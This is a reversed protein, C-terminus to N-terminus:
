NQTKANQKNLMEQLGQKHIATIMKLMEVCDETGRGYTNCHEKLANARTLLETAIDVRNASDLKEKSLEQIERDNKESETMYINNQRLETVVPLIAPIVIPAIFIKNFDRVLTYTNNYKWSNAQVYFFDAEASDTKPGRSQPGYTCNVTQSPQSAALRKIERDFEKEREEQEKQAQEKQTQQAAKQADERLKKDLNLLKDIYQKYEEPTYKKDEKRGEGFDSRKWPTTKEPTVPIDMALCTSINM